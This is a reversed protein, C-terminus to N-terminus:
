RTPTTTPGTAAFEAGTDSAWATCLARWVSLEIDDNYFSVSGDCKSANVGGPHRGRATIWQQKHGNSDLTAIGNPDIVGEVTPPGGRAGVDIGGTRTTTALLPEPLGAALFAERVETGNTFWEGQRALSDAGAYNPTQWGTFVQGGLATQADSYPGGWGITSPLVIIEAMMLTNATGDTIKALPTIKAPGFPAGGFLTYNPSGPGYMDHQGYVTNGANVVYNSRVRAWTPADQNPPFENQQLGIDSPCAHMAVYTTRAAYNTVDSFSKDPRALNKLSAQEIYPMLPIYWGHDDYWNGPPDPDAPTKKYAKIYADRNWFKAMPLLGKFTSEYNLHALSLQKLNNVCQTRRAAERAAQIAPLLLAVLVGIIAIVVLLEVLTFGKQSVQSKAGVMMTDGWFLQSESFYRENLRSAAIL